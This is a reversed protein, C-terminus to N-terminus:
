PTGAAIKECAVILGGAQSPFLRRLGAMLWHGAAFENCCANVYSCPFFFTEREVRLPRLGASRVAAELTGGTFFHVHDTTRGISPQVIRNRLRGMLCGENPVGLILLGGPSLVRSLEALAASLEPVHELVHNCLGIDIVGSPFPLQYLSARSLRAQPSVQVARALRLPNYDVGVLTMRLGNAAAARPLGLLNIGDGCGADLVTVDGSERRRECWEQIMSGFVKWRHEIVRRRGRTGLQARCQDDLYWPNGVAIEAAPHHQKM